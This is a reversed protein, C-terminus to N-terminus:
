GPAGYYERYWEIYKGIGVDIDTKPEYGLKRLKAIDAISAEVDCPHLPLYEIKAKKGLNKEIEGIADMISGAKNGGVNYIQYRAPKQLAILIGEVADDIYTFQRIMNGNNYVEIPAGISIARTFKFLAM